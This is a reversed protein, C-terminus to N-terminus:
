FAAAAKRDDPGYM